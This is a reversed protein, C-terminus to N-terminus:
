RREWVMLALMALTALLTLLAIAGIYLTHAHVRRMALYAKVDERTTPKLAYLHTLGSPKESTQWDVWGSLRLETLIGTASDGEAWRHFEEGNVYWETPNPQESEQMLRVLIKRRARRVRRSRNAM